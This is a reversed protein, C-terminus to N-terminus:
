DVIETTGSTDEIIPDVVVHKKVNITLTSLQDLITDVHENQSYFKYNSWSSLSITEKTDIDIFKLTLNNSSAYSKIEDVSYHSVDKLTPIKSQSYSGQGLVEDKYLNNLDFSMKKIMASEKKGLNINIEKKIDNISGTYPITVSPYSRSSVEYIKNSMDYGKLQMRQVNVLSSADESFLMAKGLGYLEMVDKSKINTQFNRSIDELIKIAKNVDTLKTAAKAVGMIVKLQNKGRTYDNRVGETREPCYSSMQDGQSSGDGAVHRNRAIALAQEGNLHQMGADVYVTNEGWDRSSNQECIAYDVNVDIGGVSDVLQVLGKFNIKAYYDISVDFLKEITNVACSSSSGWTTTNIRKYTNGSCATKLYM